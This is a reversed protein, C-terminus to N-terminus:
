GCADGSTPLPRSLRITSAAVKGRVALGSLCATLEAARLMAHISGSHFITYCRTWQLYAKETWVSYHRIQILELVQDLLRPASTTESNM